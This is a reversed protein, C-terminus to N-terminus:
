KGCKNKTTFVITLVVAAAAILVIALVITVIAWVPLSSSDEPDKSIEPSNTTSEKRQM